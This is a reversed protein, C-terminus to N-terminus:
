YYLLNLTELRAIIEQAVREPVPPPTKLVNLAEWCGTRALAALADVITLAVVLANPQALRKALSAAAQCDGLQGLAKSIACLVGMDSEELLRALLVPLAHRDQRLGLLMAVMERVEPVPHQLARMLKQDYFIPETAALSTGCQDCVTADILNEAWCTSCFQILPM